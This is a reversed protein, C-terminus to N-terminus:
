RETFAAERNTFVYWVTGGDGFVSVAASGIVCVKKRQYIGERRRYLNDRERYYM